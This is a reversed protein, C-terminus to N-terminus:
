FQATWRQITISRKCSLVPQGVPQVVPQVVTM